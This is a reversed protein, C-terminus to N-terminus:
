GKQQASSGKSNATRTRKGPTFVNQIRNGFQHIASFARACFEDFATRRPQAPTTSPRPSCSREDPSHEPIGGELMKQLAMITELPYSCPATHAQPTTTQDAHLQSAHMVDQEERTTPQRASSRTFRPGGRDQAATWWKLATKTAGAPLSNGATM